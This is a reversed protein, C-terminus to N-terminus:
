IRVEAVGGGLSHRMLDPLVPVLSLNGDTDHMFAMLQSPRTQLEPTSDSDSCRSVILGYHTV